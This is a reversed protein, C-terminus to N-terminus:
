RGIGFYKFGQSKVKLPSYINRMDYIKLNKSPHLKKFNISKFDNWETHLIVLDAGKVADHISNSFSVNKLKNFEKKLGTPDYYKIKAGKKSLFPIMELSSSDRMDDTNAKFTVGLFCIKKNKIKNNLIEDVKKLLLKSRLTNSKIVSKIVSLNTKFKDATTVIAKTDKPFCSGGYAPGARLFRSGIRKDLGIGISIDEVDIGTKECLNAIENIFSIKTALFANSAFKIMEATIIKTKIIPSDIGSHMQVVKEVANSNNGGIIIRDPTFFDKVAEGERLFEPCSIYNISQHECFKSEILDGTGPQVTSRMLLVANDKLHKTTWEVSKWIYELNPSGNPDSPTGVTIISIEGLNLDSDDIHQFTLRKLNCNKEILKDLGPEFIQPNFSNLSNIRQSDIDYGTVEHGLESLCAATVVGAYGMGIVSIKM